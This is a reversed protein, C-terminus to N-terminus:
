TPILVVEWVNERRRASVVAVEKKFRRAPAIVEKSDTTGVNPNFVQLVFILLLDPKAPSVVDSDLDFGIAKTHQHLLMCGITMLFIGAYHNM